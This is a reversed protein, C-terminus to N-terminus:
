RRKNAKLDITENEGSNDRTGTIASKVISLVSAIKGGPTDWYEVQEVSVKILRIDPDDSGEWWAKLFPSWFEKIKARDNLVTANGTASVYRENSTAAYGLNVRPNGRIERVKNSDSGTMFWIDGDFEAEHTHMPRSRPSGNEDITTMMTIRIDKILENVKEMVDVDTKTQMYVESPM